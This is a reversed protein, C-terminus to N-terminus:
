SRGNQKEPDPTGVYPEKDMHVQRPIATVALAVEWPGGTLRHLKKTRLLRHTPVPENPEQPHTRSVDEWTRM